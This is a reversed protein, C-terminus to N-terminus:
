EVGECIAFLYEAYAMSAAGELTRLISDLGEIFAIRDRMHELQIDLLGFVM